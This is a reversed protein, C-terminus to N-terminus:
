AAFQSQIVKIASLWNFVVSMRTVNYDNEVSPRSCIRSDTNPTGTERDSGLM